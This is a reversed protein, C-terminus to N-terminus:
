PKKKLKEFFEALHDDTKQFSTKVHARGQSSIQLCSELSKLAKLGQHHRQDGMQAIVKDKTRPILSVGLCQGRANHAPM